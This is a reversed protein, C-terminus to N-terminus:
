GGSSSSGALARNPYQHARLLASPPQLVVVVHELRATHRSGCPLVPTRVCGTRRGCVRSPCPCNLSTRYPRRLVFLCPTAMLTILLAPVEDATRTACSTCIM